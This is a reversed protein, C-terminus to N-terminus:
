EPSSNPFQKDNFMEGNPGLKAELGAFKPMARLCDLQGEIGFRLLQFLDM